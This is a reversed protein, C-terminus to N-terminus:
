QRRKTSVFAVTKFGNGQLKLKKSAANLHKHRQKGNALCTTIMQMPQQLLKTIDAFPSIFLAFLMTGLFFGQITGFNVEFFENKIKKVKCFASCNCLWNDLLIILQFPIGM